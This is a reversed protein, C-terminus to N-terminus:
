GGLVVVGVIVEGDVLWGVFVIWFIGVFDVGCWVNFGGVCWFGCDFIWWLVFVVFCNCVGCLGCLKVVGVLLEVMVVLCVVVGDGFGVDM